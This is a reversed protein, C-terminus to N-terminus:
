LQLLELTCATHFCVVLELGPSHVSLLADLSGQLLRMGRFFTSIVKCPGAPALSFFASIVVGAAAAEKGQGWIM